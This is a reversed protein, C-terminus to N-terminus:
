VSDCSAIFDEVTNLMTTSVMKAIKEVPWTMGQKIWEKGSHFTAGALQLSLFNLYEPDTLVLSRTRIIHGLSRKIFSVYNSFFIADFSDDALAVALSNNLKTMECASVVLNHAAALDIDLPLAEVERFLLEFMDEIIDTILEEKSSYYNYLNQRSMGCEKSLETFSVKEYPKNTILKIFAQRIRLAQETELM